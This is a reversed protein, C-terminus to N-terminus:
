SLSMAWLLTDTFFASNTAVFLDVMESDIKYPCVVNMIALSIQHFLKYLVCLFLDSALQLCSRMTLGFEVIGTKNLLVNQL